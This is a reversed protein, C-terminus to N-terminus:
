AHILDQPDPLLLAVVDAIEIRVDPVAPRVLAAGDALRVAILEGFLCNVLFPLEILHVPHEVVQFVVGRGAADHGVEVVAAIEGFTDPPVKLEAPKITSISGIVSEKKQVGFAVVEVGELNKTEELLIANVTSGTVKKELPVFGVFTYELTEGIKVGALSYAGDLDSVTGKSQGKLRISVGPIPNGDADLVTGHVTVTEAEGAQQARVTGPLCLAVMLVIVTLIFGGFLANVQKPGSSDRLGKLRFIHKEGMVKIKYLVVHNKMQWGRM